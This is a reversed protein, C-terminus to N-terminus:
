TPDIAFQLMTLGAALVEAFDEAFFSTSIASSFTVLLDTRLEEAGDVM